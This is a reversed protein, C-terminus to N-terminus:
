AGLAGLAAVVRQGGEPPVPVPTALFGSEVDYATEGLLVSSMYAEGGLAAIAEQDKVRGLLGNRDEGGGSVRQFHSAPVLRLSLGAARLTLFEGQLDVRDSSVWADIVSQPIFVKLPM